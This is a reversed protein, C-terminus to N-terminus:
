HKFKGMVESVPSLYAFTNPYQRLIRYFEGLERKRVLCILLNKDAHSYMGVAHILTVSRDLKDIIEQSIEDPHDTVIEFKYGSKLGKLIFDVVENAVFLNVVTCLAPTLDVKKDTSYVFLAVFVVCSDMAFSLWAINKSPDKVKILSAIAYTGGSAGFRRIMLAFGIGSIFGGALAPLLKESQIYLLVDFWKVKEFLIMLLSQLVIYYTLYVATKKHVFIFVFVFIPLNFLMTFYGMNWKTIYGVIAAVGSIGGPAFQNANIFFYYGIAVFISALTASLLDFFVTQGKTEPKPQKREVM